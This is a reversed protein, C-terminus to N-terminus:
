LSVDDVETLENAAIVFRSRLDVGEPEAATSEGHAYQDAQYQVLAKRQLTSVRLYGVAKAM